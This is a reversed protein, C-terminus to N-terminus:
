IVKFYKQKIVALFKIINKPKRDANAGETTGTYASSQTFAFKQEFKKRKPAIGGKALKMNTLVFIEGEVKATQPSGVGKDADKFM